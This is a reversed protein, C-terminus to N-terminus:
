SGPGEVPSAAPVDAAAVAGIRSLDAALAATRDRHPPNFRLVVWEWWRPCRLVQYTQAIRTGHDLPELTFRWETSDVFRWTPITRWTISRGPDVETVVCTRHWRLYLSKNAGRFRVGPAAVIAGDLWEVALCEHSWDGTRSFDSVLRWVADVPVPVECEVRCTRPIRPRTSM